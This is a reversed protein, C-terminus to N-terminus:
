LQPMSHPCALTATLQGGQPALQSCPAKREQERLVWRSAWLGPYFPGQVQPDVELILLLHGSNNTKFLASFM